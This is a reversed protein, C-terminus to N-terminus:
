LNLDKPALNLSLIMKIVNKLICGKKVCLMMQTGTLSLKQHLIPSVSLTLQFILLKLMIYINSIYCIREFCCLM